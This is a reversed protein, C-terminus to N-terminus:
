LTLESLVAARAAGLAALREMLAQRANRVERVREVLAQQEAVPPIPLKFRSLSGLTVTPQASGIANQDSQRKGAPSNLFSEVYEGLVLSSDPIIHAIHRQFVFPEDFDVYVAVGYTAGVATYLVDGRKPRVRRTLEKYTDESVFKTHSWDVNGGSITRVLFFPVGSEIFPPPQHTGDTVRLCAKSLPQPPYRMSFREIESYVLSRELHASAEGADQVCRVAGEIQILFAAIRRQEELPPLAFEIRLLASLNVTKSLSGASFQDARGMFADSLLLYPLFVPLVVGPRARFVLAHGSAVGAFTAFGVKRQEIGRRALIVDGAEFPRLDSNEGVDDPSGWRRITPSNADLHELGVYHQVGAEAATWGRAKRTAGASTVMEDFRLRRWGPKLEAM